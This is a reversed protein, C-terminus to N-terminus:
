LAQAEKLALLHSKRKKGVSSFVTNQIHVSSTLAEFNIVNRVSIKAIADCGIFNKCVILAETKYNESNRHTNKKTEKSIKM